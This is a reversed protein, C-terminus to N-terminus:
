GKVPPVSYVARAFALGDDKAVGYCSSTFDVVWVLAFLEGLLDDTTWIWEQRKAFAPDLRLGDRKEDPKILSMTEELTPLRWGDLGAFGSENLTKIWENAEDLRLYKSSGGRQWILGSARDVVIEDDGVFHSSYSVDIGRGEPNLVEDYFNLKKMMSEVDKVSLSSPGNRYITKQPEM